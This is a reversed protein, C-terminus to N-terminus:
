HSRFEGRNPDIEAHASSGGVHRREPRRMRASKRCRGTKNCYGLIIWLCGRMWSGAVLANKKVLAAMSLCLSDEVTTKKSGQWGSGYGGMKNGTEGLDVPTEFLGDGGMEALVGM